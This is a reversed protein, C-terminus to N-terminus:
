KMMYDLKLGSCLVFVTTQGNRLSPFPYGLLSAAGMNQFVCVGGQLNWGFYTWKWPRTKEEFGVGM